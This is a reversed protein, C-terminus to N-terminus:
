EVSKGSVPGDCIQSDSLYLKKLLARKSGIHHCWGNCSKKSLILLEIQHVSWIM